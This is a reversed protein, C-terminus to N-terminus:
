GGDYRIPLWRGNVAPEAPAGSLPQVAWGGSAGSQGDALKRLPAPRSERGSRLVLPVRDRATCGERSHHVGPRNSARALAASLPPRPAAPLLAGGSTELSPGGSGLSRSPPAAGKGVVAQITSRLDPVL